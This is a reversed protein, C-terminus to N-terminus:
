RCWARPWCPHTATGMKKDSYQHRLLYEYVKGVLMRGLVHVYKIYTNMDALPCYPSSPHFCYASQKMYPFFLSCLGWVANQDHTASLSLLCIVYYSCLITIDTSM